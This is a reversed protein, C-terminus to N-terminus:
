PILAWIRFFLIGVCAWCAAQLWHLVDCSLHSLVELARRSSPMPFSTKIVVSFEPELIRKIDDKLFIFDSLSAEGFLYSPSTNWLHSERVRKMAQAQFEKWIVSHEIKNKKKCNNLNCNREWGQRPLILSKYEM